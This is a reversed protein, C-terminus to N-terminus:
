RDMLGGYLRGLAPGYVSDVDYSALVRQRGSAGLRARESPDDLLGVIASAFEAPQDALLADTGPTVDIGEAGVATSVVPLGWAWADLIKVRMGGGSLLPVAFVATERLYPALDEVYGLVEIAAGLTRGLRKVKEPPRKGIVTLVPQRVRSRALVEPMVKEALWLVGEINPPWFMTGLVLIRHADPRAEVPSTRSAAVCIPLVSTKSRMEAREAPTAARAVADRDRESVYLTHDFHSVQGAEYRAVLGAERQLVYRQVTRSEGAALREVIRYVANHNDLVKFRGPAFRGFQAMWLQDAHVADFARGGAAAAAADRMRKSSDRAILFSRRRVFSNALHFADRAASRRMDVTTVRACMARLAELAEVPDDERSFTVLHTEYREALWALTHFARTKPGADLPLPVIQSLYLVRAPV